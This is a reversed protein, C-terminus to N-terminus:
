VYRDPNFFFLLWIWALVTEIVKYVIIRCRTSRENLHLYESYYAIFTNQLNREKEVSFPNYRKASDEIYKRNISYAAISLYRNCIKKMIWCLFFCIVIVTGISAIRYWLKYERYADFTSVYEIVCKSLLFFFIGQFILQLIFNSDPESTLEKELRFYDSSPLIVAKVYKDTKVKSSTDELDYISPMSLSGVKDPFSPRSLSYQLLM